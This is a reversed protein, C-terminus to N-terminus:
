IFQSEAFSQAQQVIGSMRDIYIKHDQNKAIISNMQIQDLVSCAAYKLSMSYYIDTSLQEIQIKRNNLLDFFIIVIIAGGGCLLIQFYSEALDTTFYLLSIAVILILIYVLPIFVFQSLDLKRDILIQKASAKPLIAHNPKPLIPTDYISYQTSAQLLFGEVSFSSWFVGTVNNVQKAIGFCTENGVQAYMVRMGDGYLNYANTYINNILEVLFDAKHAHFTQPIRITTKALQHGTHCNEPFPPLVTASTIPEYPKAAFEQSQRYWELFDRERKEIAALSIAM